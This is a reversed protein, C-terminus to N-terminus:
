SVAWNIQRWFSMCSLSFFLRLSPLKKKDWLRPTSREAWSWKGLALTPTYFTLNSLILAVKSSGINFVLGKRSDQSLLVCLSSIWVPNESLEQVATLLYNLIQIKVDFNETLYSLLASIGSKMFSRMEPSLNLPLSGCHQHFWYRIFLVIKILFVLSWYFLIWGRTAFVCLGLGSVIM